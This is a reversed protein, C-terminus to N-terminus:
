SARTTPLQATVQEFSYDDLDFHAARWAAEVTSMPKLPVDGHRDFYYSNSVACSDQWFVQGGRRELMEHFYRENAAATVEIRHARKGRAHRLLRLIHSTQMEILTFYSAGNYGYPGIISFFNPFGPVSVGEYAQLRNEDWWKELDRGGVGTMDFTPMNGSEMVKFGTALILVDAPYETGAATRVGTPTIEAIPDTELTVNDRNFTPLYDNSFGPRKCGLAYRPTLKDRVVPDHVQRRLHALGSREGLKALPLNSYYHASLPFTLEVFAQSALRSIAQGGPLYRLAWRAPTPLTTDPRPLCWIPTRQFVTLEAVDPAISPIVQVASAGTGIIAVRKGHLDRDHDWRSTHMTLGSFSEVGPIDPLKPRTLVGTAGIVYRATLTEGDGTRLTWVSADEDFEAATITTSFRIRPRLGYKDVCHEAYDKLEHGPAYIRSWRSSQEFSYQYSFSPIDVAIGPYTNWHWTGGVGDADDVILFDRFGAKRLAIAVGIGSFGAGVIIVEHDIAM